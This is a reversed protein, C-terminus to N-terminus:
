SFSVDTIVIEDSHNSRCRPSPPCTVPSPSSSPWASPACRGPATRASAVASPGPAGLPGHHVRLPM